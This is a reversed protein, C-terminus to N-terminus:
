VRETPPRHTEGVDEFPYPTSRLQHDSQASPRRQMERLHPEPKSWIDVIHDLRRRRAPVWGAGLEICGGRLTPFRDLVGDLILVSLFREASHFICTMDKSGVVEAGGRATKRNPFGDIMWEPDISLKSSGVHLWLAARAGALRAWCPDHARHGPSRGPADSPLMFMRLGEALARDLEAASREPDDLVLVGTAVLRPEEAVFAMMARNFARVGGYRVERDHCAFLTAAAFSSFIVQRQIRLVDLVHGREKSNFAGLAAYGKPGRLIPDGLAKLQAVAEPSHGHRGSDPLGALTADLSGVPLLAPLRDRIAPDAYATLFDPLEMIHSDPDNLVRPTM